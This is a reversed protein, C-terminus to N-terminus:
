SRCRRRHQRRPRLPRPQRPRRRPRTRAPQRLRSPHPHQVRQPPPLHAPRRRQSRPPRPRSRPAAPPALRNGPRQRLRRRRRARSRTPAAEVRGDDDLRGGPAAPEGLCRCEGRVRPGASDAGGGGAGRSGRSGALGGAAAPPAAAAVANQRQRRASRREYVAWRHDVVRKVQAARKQLRKERQALAVLRPDQPTVQETTAWPHAAVTAWLLFFVVIAGAATYLRVLHNTMGEEGSGAQAGRVAERSGAQGAREQGGRGAPAGPVAARGVADGAAPAPSATAGGASSGASGRHQRSPRSLRRPPRRPRTSRSPSPSPRPTRQRITAAGPRAVSPSPGRGPAQDEAATKAVQKSPQEVEQVARRPPAAPTPLSVAGPGSVFTVAAYRNLPPLAPPRAKLAQQLSAQWADLKHARKAIQRSSVVEPKTQPTASIPPTSSPTPARPQRRSRSAALPRARARPLDGARSGAHLHSVYQHSRRSPPSPSGTWPSGETPTHRRVRHSDSRRPKSARPESSPTIGAARLLSRVIDSIPSNGRPSTSSGVSCTGSCM